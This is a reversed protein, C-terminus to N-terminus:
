IVGSNNCEAHYPEASGARAVAESEGPEAHTGQSGGGSRFTQAMEQFVHKLCGCM